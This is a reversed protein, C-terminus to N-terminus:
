MTDGDPPSDPPPQICAQIASLWGKMDGVDAAELVYELANDAQFM